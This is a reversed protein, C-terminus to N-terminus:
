GRSEEAALAVPAVCLALGLLARLRRDDGGGSCHMASRTARRKIAATKGDRARAGAHRGSRRAPPSPM